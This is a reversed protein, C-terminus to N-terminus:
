MSTMISPPTRMTSVAPLLGRSYMAFNLSRVYLDHVLARGDSVGERGLAATHIYDGYISELAGAM